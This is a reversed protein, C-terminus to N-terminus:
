LDADSTRIRKPKWNVALPSEKVRLRKCPFYDTPPGSPVGRVTARRARFSSRPQTWGRKQADRRLQRDALDLRHVVDDSFPLFVGSRLVDRCTSRSKGRQRGDQVHALAKPRSTNAFSMSCVPRSASPGTSRRLNNRCGHAARM